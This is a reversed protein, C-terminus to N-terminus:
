GWGSAVCQVVEVPPRAPKLREPREPESARDSTRCCDEGLNTKSTRSTDPESRTKEQRVGPAKCRRLSPAYGRKSLQWFMVVAPGFSHFGSESKENKGQRGNRWPLGHRGACKARLQILSRLGFNRRKGRNRSNALVSGVNVKLNQQFYQLGLILNGNEGVPGHLGRFCVFPYFSFSFGRTM